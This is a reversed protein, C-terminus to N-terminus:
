TSGGFENEPDRGFAKSFLQHFWVYTGNVQIAEDPSILVDPQRRPHTLRHRIQLSARFAAWNPGDADIPSDSKRIVKFFSDIAFRINSAVDLRAPRVSVNGKSDLIYSEERLLALRGIEASELTGISQSESRDTLWSATVLKM